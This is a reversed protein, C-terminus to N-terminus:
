EEKGSTFYVWLARGGVFAALLGVLVLVFILDIGHMPHVKETVHAHAPSPVLAFLIALTFFSKFASRLMIYKFYLMNIANILLKKLLINSEQLGIVKEM